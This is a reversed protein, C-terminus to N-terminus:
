LMKSSLLISTLDKEWTCSCLSKGVQALMSLASGKMKSGSTTNDLFGKFCM